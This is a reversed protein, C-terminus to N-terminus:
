KDKLTESFMLGSKKLYEALRGESMSSVIGDMFRDPIEVSGDIEIKVALSLKNFKIETM